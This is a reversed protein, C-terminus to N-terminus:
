NRVYRSVGQMRSTTEQVRRSMAEDNLRQIERSDITTGVVKSWDIPTVVIPPAQYLSIRPEGSAIQAAVYQYVAHIAAMFGVFVVLPALRM